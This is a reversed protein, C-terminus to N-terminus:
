TQDWQHTCDSCYKYYCEPTGSDGEHHLLETETSHCKPCLGVWQYWHNVYVELKCRYVLLASEVNDLNETFTKEIWSENGGYVIRNFGLKETLYDEVRNRNFMGGANYEYIPNAVWQPIKFKARIEILTTHTM